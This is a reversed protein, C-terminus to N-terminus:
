LAHSNIGKNLLAFLKQSRPGRRHPYLLFDPLMSRLRYIWPMQWIARITPKDNGSIPVPLSLPYIALQSLAKWSRYNRQELAQTLLFRVSQQCAPKLEPYTAQICKFYDIYSALMLTSNDTLNTQHKRYYAGTMPSYVFPVGAKLWALALERDECAKLDPDFPRGALRSRRFLLCQQLLPFPKQSLFDPCVLLREILEQPSQAGVKHFKTNIIHNRADMYVREYDSYVVVDANADPVAALQSRLKDPHIWDDADLFQMWEGTATEWGFNRASSVGGNPKCFYRVAPYDRLIASMVIPTEDTSGDDVVVCEVEPYTQQMVSDVAHRLYAAKNYTTIVVSIKPFM